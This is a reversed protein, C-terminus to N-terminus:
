PDLAEVQDARNACTVDLPDGEEGVQHTEVRKKLTHQYIKVSYVLRPTWRKEEGGEKELACASSVQVPPDGRHLWAAQLTNFHAGVTCLM